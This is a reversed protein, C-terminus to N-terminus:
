ADRLVEAPDIRAARRAPLWGAIAGVAALVAAAGALTAPDRPTLGFLLTEVFRAAWLSAIAGIIVGSGVLLAVRRLVLRVVDAPPAGLAMRIGIETRRRSVAYSTVGYLGLGALLLALGGFFGSLMAVLREQTLAANVQDALPRFTLALEPNVRGIADAVSRTLMAPSGAASRISLGISSINSVPDDLQALPVYMTPPVPDRLSRYVADAAVGVIERPLRHDRARPERITHGFPSNGNLFRRVFAENVLVVRAAGPRDQSTFNRGAVLRTGFTALWGPSIVNVYASRHREPPPTEGPVEVSFQWTSGSVPTVVSLAADAVGPLAQVATLVREYVAMRATPEIRARVANINVVLVRDREFGLHQTALTSFTRVFLGAAVILMLSLAVQAVVLGSSLSIRRDGVTGRGHEKLAEMPQVRGARLAPATGFVLATLVAVGATFVLVRWDASLDLFVTSTETSLQRILLQSGWRAFLMGAAAGTGALVISEALLQRALRWRSAGLAMRVSMEHRRATARALLLNAINACAILLVLAVVVMVTLLPRQYRDRLYSTGTGAPTLTFAEKLYTSSGDRPATDPFTADRIQAQIGRLAALAADLTQAPKRRVMIGLWWTTRRDLFTEAGRVLPETGLPVVLDFSRGIDAGFFDPPTVGVITFPVREIMLTRGIPDEAGDRSLSPQAQRLAGFRRQWFSYSIIVVAGDPGGGRQDDRDTFTRGLLAPVGLVDFFSGSAWIGDVFETQGGSALNLRGPSWAAAGDFLQPRQRIQDWIAYTWSDSDGAQIVALRDPQKVPLTRLMLSDILSFIATNAGIGLALSLIAVLSVVPTSRLARVALRLDHM